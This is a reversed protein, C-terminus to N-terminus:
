VFAGILHNQMVNFNYTSNYKAAVENAIQFNYSKIKLGFDCKDSNKNKKSNISDVM